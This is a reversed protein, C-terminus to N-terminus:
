FSQELLLQLIKKLQRFLKVLILKLLFNRMQLDQQQNRKIEVCEVEIFEGRWKRKMRTCIESTPSVKLRLVVKRCCLDFHYGRRWELGHLKKM